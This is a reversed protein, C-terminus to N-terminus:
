FFWGIQAFLSPGVALNLDDIGSKLGGYETGAPGLSSPNDAFVAAGGGAPHGWPRM